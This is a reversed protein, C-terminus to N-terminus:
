RCLLISKLIEISKSFNETQHPNLNDIIQKKENVKNIFATLNDCVNKSNQYNYIKISKSIQISLDTLVNKLEVDSSLEKSDIDDRILSLWADIEGEKILNKVTDTTFDAIKLWINNTDNTREIRVVKSLEFNGKLLDKYRIDSDKHNQGKNTASRTLIDDFKDQLKSKISENVIKSIAEVALDRMQITFNSYDTLLHAIKEDYHSNRDCFTIDNIRGKIGDHDLAIDNQMSPHVNVIYVDLDPIKDGGAIDKWYEQHAQLLERFPTNSLLGGDCYWQGNIERYDYLEPLTGSAMVHDITIGDDNDIIENECENRYQKYKLKEPSDAKKHYSDFIVTKGRAIDVSIVLLRPQKRSWSTSIRLKKNKNEASDKSYYEISEELPKSSHIFWRSYESNDFFKLDPRPILPYNVNPTGNELFYKASYYRRAAETSAAGKAKTYWEADSIWPDRSLLEKNDISSALGKNNSDTWFKELEEIASRWSKGRSIVNSVLVAANIAGISTGAIIDFLLRGEKGNEGNEGMFKQYLTKLVGVEYAGLAGGGQLVLARQKKPIINSESSM